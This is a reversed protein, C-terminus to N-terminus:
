ALLIYLRFKTYTEYSCHMAITNALPIIIVLRITNSMTLMFFACRRDRKTSHVRGIRGRALHGHSGNCLCITAIHAYQANSCEIWTHYHPNNIYIDTHCTYVREYKGAISFLGFLYASFTEHKNENTEYATKTVSCKM